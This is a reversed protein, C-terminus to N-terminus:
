IESIPIVKGKLVSKKGALISEQSGPTMLIEATERWSELEDQSIIVATKGNKSQIM